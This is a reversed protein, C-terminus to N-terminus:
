HRTNSLADASTKQFVCNSRRKTILKDLIQATTINENTSSLQAIQGFAYLLPVVFKTHPLVSQQEYSSEIKIFM